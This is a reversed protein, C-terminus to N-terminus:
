EQSALFDEFEKISKEVQHNDYGKGARFLIASHELSVKSGEEPFFYSIAVGFHQALKELDTTKLDRIGNEFHSIGMPSYGLLEGLEKQTSGKEERIERLRNGIFKNIEKM